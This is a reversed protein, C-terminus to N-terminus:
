KSTYTDRLWQGSKRTDGGAPRDSDEETLMVLKEVLDEGKATSEGLYQALQQAMQIQHELLERAQLVTQARLHDLKEQSTRSHTINVLIGVYQKEEVLPYLIQHCVLNYQKYEVTMEVLQEQGSSLREFPEPDLLYSIPQGYVADSCMFFGRFAPNMHLIHLHEDLIVIGNPSTEIIRDVRQEALRKMHPICMEPEAMGRIVAVAKDRCTPYGCAGCNLQETERAKGTMELVHRIQEETVPQDADGGRRFRTALEAYSREDPTRGAHEAAYSLVDGRARYANRGGVMAPGNICGQTCFLPELLRPAGDDNLSDLATGINEFGSVAIVEGSLLDTSWGSTRVCGGELPFLRADGEPTEDFDSEECASLDIGEGRFWEDLEAFTLVCDVLGAHEPREAEAKKAVCPGIFIVRVEGSMRARIHRAHALMPSVVPTLHGVLEPRYREVYRVVAPCATCVHPRDPAANAVAATQQATHYAGIATEGVYAFGLRRLGSALRRQQWAPYAAAFSPAVSAAVPAGSAILRMARELDHRYSKAGQPCERVCTGCGICREDVVYAQGEHMRIAKVPCVRVCRYCDRCRAKNTFLVQRPADPTPVTAM